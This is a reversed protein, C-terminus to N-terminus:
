VSPRVGAWAAHIIERIGDAHLERPNWYPNALTIEVAKDIGSEPMGLDRLATRAGVRGALDFLAGAPADTAMVERLQAMAMPVASANYALAHPLVATHTEAHPLDFSGGLVHCLKHHLAVGSNGLCLACLWAGYLAQTRAERDAPHDTIRPLSQHLARVGERAQMSLVPNGDQAYLAEVAHAIANIGSIGSLKVPLGLTFDVDYIVSEPLISSGRVTTKIGDETQGLIDTMESGAYTTPLVLQPLGTRYAIAKGLGTTSGGGIAVLGDIGRETVEAMARETVEVPTHMTAHPHIGASRGGLLDAIEAAMGAQEPTCLVLANRMGLREAEEGVLSKTGSGFVVRVPASQYVFSEVTAM